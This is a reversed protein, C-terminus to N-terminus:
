YLLFRPEFIGKEKYEVKMNYDITSTLLVTNLLERKKEDELSNKDIFSYHHKYGRSSESMPLTYILVEVGDKLLSVERHKQYKKDLLIHENIIMKSILNNAKDFNEHYYIAVRISLGEEVIETNVFNIM